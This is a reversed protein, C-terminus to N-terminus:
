MAQVAERELYEELWAQRIMVRKGIKVYKLKRTRCLNRVAEGPAAYGLHDFGLYTAVESFTLLDSTTSDNTGNNM